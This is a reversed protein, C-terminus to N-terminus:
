LNENYETDKQWQMLTEESLEAFFHYFLHCRVCLVIIDHEMKHIQLEAEKFIIEDDNKLKGITVLSGKKCHCLNCKDTTDLIQKGKNINTGEEQLKISEERFREENM